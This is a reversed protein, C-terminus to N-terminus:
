GVFSSTFGNQVEPLQVKELRGLPDRLYTVARGRWDTVGNLLGTTDSYTLTTVRGTPDLVHTLRSRSDYFYRITNGLDSGPKAFEDSESVLRGFLDFRAIR